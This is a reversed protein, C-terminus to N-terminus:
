LHAYQTEGGHVAQWAATLHTSDLDLLGVTSPPPDQFLQLALSAM